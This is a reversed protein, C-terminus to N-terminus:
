VHFMDEWIQEIGICWVIEGHDNTCLNVIESYRLGNGFLYCVVLKYCWVHVEVCPMDRFEVCHTSYWANDEWIWDLGGKCM